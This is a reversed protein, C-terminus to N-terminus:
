NANDLTADIKAKEQTAWSCLSDRENQSLVANRHIWLYQPLPMAKLNLQECIDDLRKSKQKPTYTNWVSFNVKGRGQDIDDKVFWGVPQVNTYWPYITQNTHCDKCSRGLIESIDPPVQTTADLTQDPVVPPNSKDIQFFQIIVLGVVIVIAVIKIIKKIM